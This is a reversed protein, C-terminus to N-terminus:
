TYFALKQKQLQKKSLIINCLKRQVTEWDLIAYVNRHGHLICLLCSRLFVKLSTLYIKWRWFHLRRWTSCNWWPRQQPVPIHNVTQNVSKFFFLVFTGWRLSFWLVFIFERLRRNQLRITFADHLLPSSTYIGSHGVNCQVQM